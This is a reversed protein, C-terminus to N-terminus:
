KRFINIDWFTQVRCMANKLHVASQFFTVAPGSAGVFPCANMYTSHETSKM